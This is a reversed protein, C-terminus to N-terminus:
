IEALNFGCWPQPCYKKEQHSVCNFDVMQDAGTKILGAYVRVWFNAKTAADLKHWIDGWGYDREYRSRLWGAIHKPHWGKRIMYRVLTQINTPKLLEPKPQSVPIGICPPLKETGPFQDYTRHWVEPSDHEVEDFERHFQFLPSSRYDSILRELGRGIFPIQTSIGGALEASRRFHRRAQLLTELDMEIRDGNRYTLRPLSIQVPTGASISESVLYRQVKHKQHTSFPIRFSRKNIPDGYMTLDISIGEHGNKGRGVALDSMVIPLDTHGSAESVIRQFVFELLRGIGEYARGKSLEVRENLFNNGANYKGALTDEVKGIEELIRHEPDSEPILSVFHYGQGTLTTIYELGYSDLVSRILRYVPELRKLEEHAHLYIEGKYDLNFYEVDLFFFSANRSWSSRFIDLGNALIQHFEHNHHAQHPKGNAGLNRVGYSALHKCLFTDTNEPIGGCFEALRRQVPGERYYEEATIM